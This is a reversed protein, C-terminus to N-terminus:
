IYILVFLGGIIVLLLSVVCPWVPWQAIKTIFVSLLFWGGLLMVITFISFSLAAMADPEQTNYRGMGDEGVLFPFIIFINILHGVTSLLFSLLPKIFLRYNIM